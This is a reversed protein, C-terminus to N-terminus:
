AKKKAAKKKRATTATAKKKVPAAAAGCSRMSAIWTAGNIPVGGVALGWHLHPGTSFGTSGVLGVTDGRKVFQGESVLLKSQHLYTSILGQGHDIGVMGGQMNWMQAIRVYGDAVAQVPVGTGSYLDIGRHYSGSPKGNYWTQVGFPSGICHPTPPHLPETWHKEPTITALLAAAREIEGPSPKLSTMSPTPQLNRVRYQANAITLPATHVVAGAADRITLDVKRPTELAGVGAIALWTSESQRFLPVKKGLLEVVYGDAGHSMLIRVAEGQRVQAPLSFDAAELSLALAFLAPRWNM